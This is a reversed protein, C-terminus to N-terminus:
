DTQADPVLDLIEHVNGITAARLREIVPELPVDATLTLQHLDGVVKPTGVAGLGILGGLTSQRLDEFSRALSDGHEAPSPAFDGALTVVAELHSPAGPRLVLSLGSALGLVGRAGKAWDNEFPGPAYAAVLVNETPKPLNRLMTGELASPSGLRRADYAEVIRILTPDDSAVAIFDDDVSLLATPRGRTTGLVRQVGPRPERRIGDEDLRLIFRERVRQAEPEGLEAMYLTGIAFGAAIGARVRRLDVGTAERFAELRESPFIRELPARLDRRRNLEALRAFVLWRLGAAPV